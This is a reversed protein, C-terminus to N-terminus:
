FPRNLQHHIEETLNLYASSGPAGIDYVVGPKGFDSADALTTDWPIVTKFLSSKLSLLFDPVAEYSARWETEIMTFLIGAIKLKPNSGSRVRKILSLLQNMGEFSFIRRQTPIILFDSASLACVTLYGLSPPSDIIIYDYEPAANRIFNRLMPACDIDTTKRNEIFFLDYNAPILSLFPLGTELRIDSFSAKGTLAHFLGRLVKAKNVGFATTANGLPDCDVILTKKEFLAFSAAVNVATTTKGTGGKQSAICIVHGMAM